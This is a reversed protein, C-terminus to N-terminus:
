SSIHLSYRRAHLWRMSWLWVLATCLQTMLVGFGGGCAPLRSRGRSVAGAVQGVRAALLVQLHANMCLHMKCADSTNTPPHYVTRWTCDVISNSVWSGTIVGDDLLSASLPLFLVTKCVVAEAAEAEVEAVVLPVLM